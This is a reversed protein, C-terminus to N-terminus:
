RINQLGKEKSVPTAFALSSDKSWKIKSRRMADQWSFHEGCFCQMHDCGHGKSIIVGCKPCNAWGNNIGVKDRKLDNLAALTSYINTKNDHAIAFPTKCNMCKIYNQTNLARPCDCHPCHVISNVNPNIYAKQLTSLRYHKKIEAESQVLQHQILQTDHVPLKCSPHYCRLPYNSVNEQAQNIYIKRLCSRCAPSHNCNRLLPVLQAVECCIPCEEEIITEKKTQPKDNCSFIDYDYDQDWDDFEYDDDYLNKPLIINKISNSAYKKSRLSADDLKKHTKRSSSGGRSAKKGVDKEQHKMWGRPM